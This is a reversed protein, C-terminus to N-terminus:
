NSNRFRLKIDYKYENLLEKTFIFSNKLIFGLFDKNNTVKEEFNIVEASHSEYKEGVEILNYREWVPIEYINEKTKFESNIKGNFKPEQQIISEQLIEINKMNERILEYYKNITKRDFLPNEHHNFNAYYASSFEYLGNQIYSLWNLTDGVFRQAACYDQKIEIFLKVASENRQICSSILNNVCDLMKDSSYIKFEGNSSVLYALIRM